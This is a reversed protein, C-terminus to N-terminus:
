KLVMSFGYPFARRDGIWNNVLAFSLNQEKHGASSALIPRIRTMQRDYPTSNVTVYSSQAFASLCSLCFLALGVFGVKRLTYPRISITVMIDITVMLLACAM